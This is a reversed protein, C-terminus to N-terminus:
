DAQFRKPLTAVCAPLPFRTIVGNKIHEILPKHVDSLSSAALHLNKFGMEALKDVVMNVVKDGGRFHHHFSVTMGDKLGTKRIAEELTAIKPSKDQRLENATPDKHHLTDDYVKKNLAKAEQEVLAMREKYTNM